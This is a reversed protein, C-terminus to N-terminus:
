IEADVARLEKLVAEEANAPAAIERVPEPQKAAGPKGAPAPPSGLVAIAADFFKVAEAKLPTADAGPRAALALRGRGREVLLNGKQSFADIAREGAPSQKLFADISAEAEDLLRSRKQADPETRSLGVLATARLFPLEVKAEASLSSDRAASEVAWLMADPMQREELADLLSRLTADAAAHRPPGGEDAAACVSGGCAALLALLSLICTATRM